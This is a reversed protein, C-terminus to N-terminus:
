EGALAETILDEMTSQNQVFLVGNVYFTPTANVGLDIGLNLDGNVKDSAASSKSDARFKELDLGLEQAYTEFTNTSLEKSWKDQGAYIKEAMEFFKGQMGAAEAALGAAEARYHISKLPFHKFVIRLDDPYKELLSKLYPEYAKCSPCQFDAFEVITVRGDVAGKVHDDSTIEFTTNTETNGIPSPLRNEKGAAWMAVFAGALILVLGWIWINKKMIHANYVM